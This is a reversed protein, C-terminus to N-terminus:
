KCWEALAEPALEGATVDCPSGTVAAYVSEVDGTAFADGTNSIILPRPAVLAAATVVDGLSRISPVYYEGAWAADDQNSFRNADMALRQVHDDVAAAFLCWMGGAGLGILRTNGSLDRRTRLYEISTIVDQIRCATDTPEFTDPFTGTARPRPGTLPSNHEGILFADIAAM